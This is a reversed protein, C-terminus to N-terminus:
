EDQSLVGHFDVCFSAVQSAYDDFIFLLRAEDSTLQKVEEESLPLGLIDAIIRLNSFINSCGLLSIEMPENSINCVEGDFLAQRAIRFSEYQARQEPTWTQLVQDSAMAWADPEIPLGDLMAELTVFEEECLYYAVEVSSSHESINDTGSECAIGDDDSDLVYPDSLANSWQDFFQQASVQDPFDDCTLVDALATHILLHVFVIIAVVVLTAQRAITSHWM